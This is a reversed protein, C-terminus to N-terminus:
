VARVNAPDKGQAYCECHKAEHMATCAAGCRLAGPYANPKGCCQCKGFCRARAEYFNMINGQPDKWSPVGGDLVEEYGAAILYDKPFM